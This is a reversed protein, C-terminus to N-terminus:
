FNTGHSSDFDYIVAAANECRIIEFNLSLLKDPHKVEIPDIFEQCRANIYDAIEYVPSDIFDLSIDQESFVLPAIESDYCEARVLTPLSFLFLLIFIKM